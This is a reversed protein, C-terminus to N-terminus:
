IHIGLTYVFRVNGVASLFYLWIQSGRLLIIYISKTHPFNDKHFLKNKAFFNIKTFNKLLKGTFENTASCTHFTINWNKIKPDMKFNGIKTFPGNESGIKVQIFGQCHKFPERQHSANYGIVVNFNGFLGM